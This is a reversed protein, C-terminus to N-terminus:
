RPVCSMGTSIGVAGGVHVDDNVAIAFFHINGLSADFAGDRPHVVIPFSNELYLTM